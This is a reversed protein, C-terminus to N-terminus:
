EPDDTWGGAKEHQRAWKDAATPFHGSHGELKFRVPAQIRNSPEGCSKCAVPNDREKREVLKEFVTACSKCRFDHLILM